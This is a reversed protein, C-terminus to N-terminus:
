AAVVEKQSGPASAGQRHFLYVVMGIMAWVLLTMQYLTISDAGVTTTQGLVWQFLLLFVGQGVGLGAPAIPFSMVFFGIPVFFLYQTFPITSEGLSQAAAYVVFVNTGFNVVTLLASLAVKDMHSRYSWLVDWVHRVSAPWRESLTFKKKFIYFLFGACVGFFALLVFFALQKLQPIAEVTSWQSLMAVATVGILVVLGILRDMLVSFGAAVKKERGRTIYYVKVVDGSVTGPIVINFFHGIFTLRLVQKVSLQVGQSILLLRWRLSVMLLSVGFMLIAAPMWASPFFADRINSLDVQGSAVLFVFIGVGFACKLVQLLISKVRRKMGLPM